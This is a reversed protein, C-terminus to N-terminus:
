RDSSARSTRGGIRACSLHRGLSEKAAQRVFRNYLAKRPGYAAPADIWCGRSKLAHVVGSIVRRDDVRPRGRTDTPLLLELRAFQKETLGHFDRIM